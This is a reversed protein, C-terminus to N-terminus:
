AMYHSHLSCAGVSGTTARLPTTNKALPTKGSARIASAVEKKKKEKKRRKRKNLSSNYIVVMPHSETLALRAYM